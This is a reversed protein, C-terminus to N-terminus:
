FPIERVDASKFRLLFGELKGTVLHIGLPCLSCCPPPLGLFCVSLLLRVSNLHSSLAFVALEDVGLGAVGAVLDQLTVDDPRESQSTGNSPV